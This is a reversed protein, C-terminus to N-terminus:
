YWMCMGVCDSVACKFDEVGKLGMQRHRNSGRWACMFVATVTVSIFLCQFVCWRTLMNICARVKVANPSFARKLKTGTEHKEIDMKQAQRIIEDM